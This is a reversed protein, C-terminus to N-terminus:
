INHELHHGVIAEPHAQESHGNCHLVGYRQAEGTISSLTKAIVLTVVVPVLKGPFLQICYMMLQWRILAENQGPVFIGKKM